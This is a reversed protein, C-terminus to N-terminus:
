GPILFFVVCAMIYVAVLQVGALWSSKGDLTIFNFLITAVALVALELPQFVLTLHQTFFLSIL